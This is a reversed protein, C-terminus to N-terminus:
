YALDFFTNLVLGFMFVDIWIFFSSTKVKLNLYIIIIIQKQKRVNYSKVEKLHNTEATSSIYTCM